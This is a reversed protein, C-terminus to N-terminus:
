TGSDDKRRGTIVAAWNRQEDPTMERLRRIADKMEPALGELIHQIEITDPLPPALEPWLRRLAENIRTVAGARNYRVQGPREDDALMEALRATEIGVEKALKAHAGYGARKLRSKIDTRWETTIQEVQPEDNKRKAVTVM